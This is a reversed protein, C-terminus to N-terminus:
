IERFKGVYSKIIYFIPLALVSNYIIKVIMSSLSLDSGIIFLLLEYFLSSILFILILSLKNEEKLIKKNLFRSFLCSLLLFFVSIGLINQLSYFDLFLGSVIIWGLNKKWGMTIALGIVALFIMNPYVGAIRLHPLIGIQLFLLALIFLFVFFYKM